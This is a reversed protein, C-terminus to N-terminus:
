VIKIGGNGLDGILLDRGRKFLTFFNSYLILFRYDKNQGELYDLIVELLSRSVGTSYKFPAPRL